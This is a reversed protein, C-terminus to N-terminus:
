LPLDQSAQVMVVYIPISLGVFLVAACSLFGMEGYFPREGTWRWSLWGALPPMAALGVIGSVLYLGWGPGLLVKMSFLGALVLVLFWNRGPIVFPGPKLHEPTTESPSETM